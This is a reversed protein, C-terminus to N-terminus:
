VTIPAKIAAHSKYGETAIDEYRFDDISRIAPNLKPLPARTLQECARDLQNKYLHTDVFTHAFDSPRLGCVQAIMYTLLAYSAINFPVGPFIDGSRQYFQCSVRDNAVHFQFMTPYPQLGM